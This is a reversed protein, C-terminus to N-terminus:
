AYSLRGRLVHNMYAMSVLQMVGLMGSLFRPRRSLLEEMEPVISQAALEVDDESLEGSVFMTASGSETMVESEVQMGCLGILTHSIQECCLGDRFEISLSYRSREVCTRLDEGPAPVLKFILDAHQAQPAIFKEADPRRRAISALVDSEQRGREHVDRRLKFYTRLEEDMDLYVALDLRDRVANLLLPHLGSVLVVDRRERVFGRKFRGTEHDYHRSIVQRGSMVSLADHAFRNLDNARPDLHTLVKWMPATRNWKHYDDGCINTVCREGFLGALAAALTDKGVGSDGAIGLMLPKRSLRFFDNRHVGHIFMQLASLVGLLWTASLMISHLFEPQGTYSEIIPRTFDWGFAPIEAGAAFLLNTVVFAFSFGVGLVATIGGSRAQVVALFPLIWLYWGTSAPTLLLVSFFAVGVFVYFLEFSMREIRWAAYLVLSYLIPLLYVKLGGGFELSLSYLKGFEPTGLVMARFGPSILGLLAFPILAAALAACFPIFLDRNRQNRWLYVLFFPAALLVSLKAAVGLGLLIGAPIAAGRKIAVFTAALLTVPLIDVQGHWYCIYLTLPSLWVFWLAAQSGSRTVQRVLQLLTLELALTTLGFFVGVLISSGVALSLASAVLTGVGYVVYMVPGYPFAIRNGGADLFASWPDVSLSQVGHELFPLFWQTHILPVCLAVLALRVFLGVLFLPHRYLMAPSTEIM